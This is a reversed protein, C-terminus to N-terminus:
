SMGCAGSSAAPSESMQGSLEAAFSSGGASADWSQTNISETSSIRSPGLRNSVAMDAWGLRDVDLRARASDNGGEFGGPSAILMLAPRTWVIRFWQHHRGPQRAPRVKWAQWVM